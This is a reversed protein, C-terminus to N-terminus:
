AVVDVCLILYFSHPPLQATLFHENCLTVRDSSGEPLRSFTIDLMTKSRDLVTLRNSRDLLPLSLSGDGCGIDLINKPKAGRVFHKVTEVRIKIDYATKQKFFFFLEFARKIKMQNVDNMDNNENM